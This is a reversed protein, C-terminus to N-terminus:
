RRNHCDPPRDARGIHSPLFRDGASTRGSPDAVFAGIIVDDVGDGNVDGASSVSFGSIDNVAIGNLVFGDTGDLASLEISAPFPGAALARASGALIVLAEALRCPRNPM